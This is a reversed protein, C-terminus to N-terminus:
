TAEKIEIGLAATLRRVDGRTKLRKDFHACRSCATEPTEFKGICAWYDQNGSPCYGEYMFLTSHKAGRYFCVVTEVRKRKFGVARLWEETVAEDSDAPHELLWHEALLQWDRELQGDPGVYCREVIARRLREAASRTDNM